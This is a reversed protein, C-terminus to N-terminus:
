NPHVFTITKRVARSGDISLPNSATGIETGSSNYLTIPLASASDREIGGGDVLVTREAM